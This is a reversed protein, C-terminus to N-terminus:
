CFLLVRFFHKIQTVLYYQALSATMIVFNLGVPHILQHLTSRIARLLLRYM